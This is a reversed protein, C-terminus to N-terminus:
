GNQMKGKMFKSLESFRGNEEPKEGKAEKIAKEYDFFKKFKSYVPRTKNKGAKKQAQVSYNLFAQMHVRYDKDVERLRLAKIRIEYERLTMQDFEALSGIDM